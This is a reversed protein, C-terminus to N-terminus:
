SHLFTLVTLFTRVEEEIVTTSAANEANFVTYTPVPVGVEELARYTARRDFLVEQQKLDNLVLPGRLAAYEQAKHLPFGTSFFAILADCRPWDEIPAHLITEEPFFVVQFEQQGGSSFNTLRNLMETMPGSHAKKAM